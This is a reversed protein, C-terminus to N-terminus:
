GLVRAPVPNVKRRGITTMLNTSRIEVPLNLRQSAPSEQVRAERFSFVNDDESTMKRPTFGMSSLSASGDGKSATRMSSNGSSSSSFSSSTSNSRADNSSRKAKRRQALRANCVEQFLKVSFFNTTWNSFNWTFCFTVQLRFGERAAMHFADFAQKVGLEAARPISRSSLIGPTLLPTSGYQYEDNGKVWPCNLLENMTWRKKPDVTLLGALFSLYKVNLDALPWLVAEESVKSSAKLWRHFTSGPQARSILIVTKSASCSPQLRDM